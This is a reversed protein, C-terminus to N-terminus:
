NLSVAAHFSLPTNSRVYITLRSYTEHSLPYHYSM